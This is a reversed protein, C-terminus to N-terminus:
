TPSADSQRNRVGGRHHSGDRAGRAAIGRFVRSFPDPTTRLVAALTPRDGEHSDSIVNSAIGCSGSRLLLAASNIAGCSSVILNASYAEKLGGRVIHVTSIERGSASTELRAVYADTLLTVNPYQLAPDVCIVQADAKSQVLCPYGACTNCRICKSKRPEQENLMVGVPMPFPNHGLRTMIVDYNNDAM